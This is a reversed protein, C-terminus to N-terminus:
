IDLNLEKTRVGERILEQLVTDELHIDGYATEYDYITKLDDSMTVHYINGEHELEIVFRREIVIM